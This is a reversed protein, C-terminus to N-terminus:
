NENRNPWPSSTTRFKQPACGDMKAEVNYFETEIWAPGGSVQFGQVGYAQRILLMLPVLDARYGDPTFGPMFGRTIRTDNPKITAVEFHYSPVDGAGQDQSSNMLGLAVPAAVAVLGAASLLLKMRRGFVDGLSKM